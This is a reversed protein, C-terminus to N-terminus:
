NTLSNCLTRTFAGSDMPRYKAHGDLFLVPTGGILGGYLVDRDAVGTHIGWSRCYILVDDAPNTLAAASIGCASWAASTPPPPGCLGGWLAEGLPSTGQGNNAWVPVNGPVGALDYCRYGYSGARGSTLRGNADRRVESRLTPCTFAADSKVYAQIVDVLHPALGPTSGWAHPQKKPLSSMDSNAIPYVEDWDQVYLTIGTGIQRLNSICQTRHAAGRAKAFVPFLIAALVALIAIVVLLEILTFGLPSGRPNPANNTLKM